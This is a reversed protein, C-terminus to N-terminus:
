TGVAEVINATNATMWSLFDEGDPLTETFDVVPVGAEEAAAKVSQTQPGETQSNYALFKVSGSAVLTQMENLVAVPVDTEEEIAESYGSPTVNVFGAAELLYVPVPETVAVDGGGGTARIDALSDEVGGLGEKFAAAREEYNGANAEDLDALKGAITDAFSSMVPINYWVHENFSGHGHEDEAHEEEAHDEEEAHEEPAGELGSVGVASVIAEHDIETEDALRHLFPDYGGGNEVILDAKSVALKDQVTAEYSHPDQSLSTVIATVEVDNGGIAEVISGYVNTSTVVQLKEDSSESAAGSGTDTGCASISLAVLAIGTLLQTPRRAFRRHM